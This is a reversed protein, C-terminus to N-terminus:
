RHRRERNLYEKLSLAELLSFTVKEGNDKYVTIIHDNGSEIIENYFYYYIHNCIAAKVEENNIDPTCLQGEVKLQHLNDLFIQRKDEKRNTPISSTPLAYNILEDYGVKVREM